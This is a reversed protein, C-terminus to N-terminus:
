KRRRSFWRELRETTEDFVVMMCAVTVAITVGTFLALFFLGILDFITIM